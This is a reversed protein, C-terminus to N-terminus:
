APAKPAGKKREDLATQLLQAGLQHVADRLQFETKAVMQSTPKSAFLRPLRRAQQLWPKQFLQFLRQAQAQQEASLPLDARM